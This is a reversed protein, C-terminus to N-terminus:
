RVPRGDPRVVRWLGGFERVDHCLVRGPSDAVYYYLPRGRYTVQRRGSHRRTTGLLRRRVGKGAVPAGDTLVPPWARACAGYCESTDSQEKGFFYLAQGRGDALIMGFQSGVVTIRRGRRGARPRSSSTAKAVVVAAPAAPPMTPSSAGAGREPGGCAALAALAPLAFALRVM